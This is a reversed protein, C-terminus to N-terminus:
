QWNMPGKYTFFAVLVILGCGLAVAALAGLGALYKEQQYGLKFAWYLGGGYTILGLAWFFYDHVPTVPPKKFLDNLAALGFFGGVVVVLFMAAFYLIKALFDM